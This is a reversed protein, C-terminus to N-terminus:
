ARCSAVADRYGIDDKLSSEAERVKGGLVGYYRDDYHGLWQGSSCGVGDRPVFDAGDNCGQYNAPITGGVVWIEDCAPAAPVTSEDTPASSETEEAGSSTTGDDSGCGGALLGLALVCGAARALLSTSM